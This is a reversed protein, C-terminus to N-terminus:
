LTCLLRWGIKHYIRCWEILLVGWQSRARDSMGGLRKEMNGEEM